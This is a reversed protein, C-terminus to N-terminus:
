IGETRAHNRGCGETVLADALEVVTHEFRLNKLSSNM